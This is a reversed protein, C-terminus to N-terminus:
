LHWGDPGEDQAALMGLYWLALLVTLQPEEETGGRTWPIAPALQLNGNNDVRRFIVLELDSLIFGYRSGHQKMYYNVQSLAQRYETRLPPDLHTALATSWKWSPKIDGPAGNPGSGSQLADIFYATDPKYNDILQAYEGVDFSVATIGNIQNSAALGAFSVRLSRRIRPIVYESIKSRLPNEAM